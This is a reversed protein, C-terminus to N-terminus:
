LQEVINLNGLYLVQSRSGYRFITVGKCGLNYVKLVDSVTSSTPLNVTKSVANDTHKQFVAQIRVHQEPSTDLATVFLDKLDQPMAAIDQMSGKRALEARIDPTFIIAGLWTLHPPFSQLNNM